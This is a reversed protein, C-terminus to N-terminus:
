QQGTRQLAADDGDDGSRKPGQRHCPDGFMQDIQQKPPHLESCDRPGVTGRHQGIQGGNHRQALLGPLRVQSGQMQVGIQTGGHAGM